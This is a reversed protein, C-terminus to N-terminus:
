AAKGKVCPLKEWEKLTIRYARECSISHRKMLAVASNVQGQNELRVLYGDHMGETYFRMQIKIDQEALTKVIRDIGGNSRVCVFFVNKIEDMPPKFSSDVGIFVENPCNPWEERISDFDGENWCRLFAMGESDTLAFKIAEVPADPQHNQAYDHLLDAKHEITNLEKAAAETFEDPMQKQITCLGKVAGYCKIAEEFKLPNKAAQELQELQQNAVDIISATLNDM